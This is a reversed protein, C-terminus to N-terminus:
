TRTKKPRYVAAPVTWQWKLAAVRFVFVLAATGVATYANFMDLYVLGITIGAGVFAPIAYVGRVSFIQPVENAVVDRLVGGGVATTLGLLAAAVPNAGANHAILTGSVCFLALGVADSILLTRRLRHVKLVKVYVLLAAFVAAALYELREFSTPPAKGLIIDRVTGGGMGALSGLLLSGVFDFGRRAALLSGSAAFAVTGGLDLVLM